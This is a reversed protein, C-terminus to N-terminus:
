DNIMEEWIRPSGDANVMLEVSVGGQVARVIYCTREQKDVLIVLGIDLEHYEFFDDETLSGSEVAEVEGMNNSIPYLVYTLFSAIALFPLLKCFGKIIGFIFKM